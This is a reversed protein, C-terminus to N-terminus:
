SGPPTYGAQAAMKLAELGEEFTMLPTTKIATAVGGAGAAMSFAAASVNDPMQLILVLDYDGFALWGSEVSGGLREIVPRIVDLRNQPNGVQATWAETAYAAQLMYYAM